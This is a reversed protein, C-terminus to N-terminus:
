ESVVRLLGSATGILLSQHPGFTYNGIINQMSINGANKFDPMLSFQIPNSRDAKDNRIASVRWQNSEAPHYLYLKYNTESLKIAAAGATTGEQLQSWDHDKQWIGTATCTFKQIGKAPYVDSADFPKAPHGFTNGAVITNNNCTVANNVASGYAQEFLRFRYKLTGKGADLVLLNVQPFSNDCFVVEHRESNYAPTTASTAAVSGSPKLFSNDYAASWDTTISATAANYHVKYLGANTVVLVSNHDASTISNHLTQFPHVKFDFYRILKRKNKATPTDLELRVYKWLADPNEYTKNSDLAAEKERLLNSYLTYRANELYQHGYAEPHEYYSKYLRATDTTEEDTMGKLKQYILQKYKAQMEAYRGADLNFNYLAVYEEYAADSTKSTTKPLCGTIGKDFNMWINGADDPHATLMKPAYHLEPNQFHYVDVATPQITWQKDANKQPHIVWLGPTTKSCNKWHLQGNRCVTAKGTNVPLVISNDARNIYFWDKSDFLTSSGKFPNAVPVAISATVQMSANSIDILLLRTEKPTFLITVVTQPDIFAISSFAQKGPRSKRNVASLLEYQVNKPSPGKVASTNTSTLQEFSALSLASLLTTDKVRKLSAQENNAATFNKFLSGNPTYKWKAALKPALSAPIGTIHQVRLIEKRTDTAHTNFSWSIITSVLLLTFRM